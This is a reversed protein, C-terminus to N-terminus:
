REAAKAAMFDRAEQSIQEPTIKYLISEVDFPLEHIRDEILQDFVLFLRIKEELESIGRRKEFISGEEQVGLGNQARLDRAMKELARSDTGEFEVFEGPKLSIVFYDKHPISTGAIFHTRDFLVVAIEGSGLAPQPDYLDQSRDFQISGPAIQYSNNNLTAKKMNELLNSYFESVQKSLLAVEGMRYQSPSIKVEQISEGGFTFRDRHVYLSERQANTILVFKKTDEM